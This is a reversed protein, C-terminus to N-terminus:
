YHVNVGIEDKRLASFLGARDVPAQDKLQIVYLHWAPTAYTGVHPPVLPLGALGRHYRDALQARRVVWRDLRKAQSIGLAALADTMRYNFGLLLQQYYWAGESPATMEAEDRTTGHNRLMAMKRALEPDNTVAMGGEATTIIKVPHFSFIAIDSFRCDGIPKDRYRGGIAHSADEIIRFGYAQSLRHIAAMDASQGAMHVPIVVKPLRGRGSAKVLKQELASASMNFTLPDIDVFDIEAGCHRACNATAVFTIPSTWVVDGAGVGLALCALHLASTASNVAVGHAAGCKEKVIQEFAPVAPGQTLWDSRLVETVARIDEEEILQRGYPIYTKGGSDPKVKAKDQATM